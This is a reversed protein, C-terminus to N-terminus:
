FVSFESVQVGQLKYVYTIGFSGSTETFLSNGHEFKFDDDSLFSYTFLIALNCYFKFRGTNKCDIQLNYCLM